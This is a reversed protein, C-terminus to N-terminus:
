KAVFKYVCRSLLRGSGRLDHGPAFRRKRSCREKCGCNCYGRRLLAKATRPLTRGGASKIGPMLPM